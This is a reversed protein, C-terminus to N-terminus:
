GGRMQPIFVICGATSDFGQLIEGVSESEMRAARFGQSVYLNFVELAAACHAADTPDWEHKTDGNRDLKRFELM